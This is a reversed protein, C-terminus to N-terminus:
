RGKKSEIQKLLSEKRADWKESGSSSNSPLEPILLEARDYKGEDMLTLIEQYTREAKQEYKYLWIFVGSIACISIICAVVIAITNKTKIKSNTKKYGKDADVADMLIGRIKTVTDPDNEFLLEAKTNVQDAKDKWVILFDEPSVTKTKSCGLLATKYLGCVGDGLGMQRMQSSVSNVPSSLQATISKIHQASLIAFEVLDEKSNPIPYNKILDIKRNEDKENQYMTFFERVSNVAKVGTIEHGCSPCKADLAGLVQGCQPCKRVEGVTVKVAGSTGTPTGCSPCFKAGEVLSSGCKQCFAM